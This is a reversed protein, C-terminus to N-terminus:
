QSSQDGPNVTCHPAIHGPKGCWFCIYQRPPRGGGQATMQGGGQAQSPAYVTQAQQPPTYTMQAQQLPTGYGLPWGSYPLPAQYGQFQGLPQGPAQMTRTYQGAYAQQGYPDQGVGWPVQTHPQGSRHMQASPAFM